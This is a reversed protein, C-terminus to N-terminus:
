HRIFGVIDKVAKMTEAAIAQARASGEALVSDIYVPDQTLKKMEAALPGLKAVALDVLFGTGFNVSLIAATYAGIAYFAGHGLSIQGTFGVVINLGLAAIGYYGIQILLNLYYADLGLPALLLALVSVVAVRRALPTPFITMDAQYTTRFEGCRMRSHASSM